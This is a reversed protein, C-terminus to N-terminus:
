RVSEDVEVLSDANFHLALSALAVGFFAALM